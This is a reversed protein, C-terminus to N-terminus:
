ASLSRPRLDTWHSEIYELCAERTNEDFVTTWGGPVTAFSPWLSHQGEDNVLVLFRGENDDFPNTSM